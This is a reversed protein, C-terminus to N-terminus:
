ELDSIYDSHKSNFAEYAVTLIHNRILALEGLQWLIFYSLTSFLFTFHTLYFSVRRYRCLDCTQCRRRTLLEDELKMVSAQRSVLYDSEKCGDAGDMELVNKMKYFQFETCMVCYSQM